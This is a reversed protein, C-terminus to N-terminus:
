TKNVRPKSDHSFPPYTPYLTSLDTTDFEQRLENLLLNVEPLDLLM